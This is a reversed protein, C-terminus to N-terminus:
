PFQRKGLPLLNRFKKWITVQQGRVANEHRVQDLADRMRRFEDIPDGEMKRYFDLGEGARTLIFYNEIVDQMINGTHKWEVSPDTLLDYEGKILSGQRYLITIPSERTYSSLILQEYPLSKDPGVPVPDILRMEVQVQIRNDNETHSSLDVLRKQGDITTSYKGEKTNPTVVTACLEEIDDRFQSLDLQDIKLEPQEGEREVM